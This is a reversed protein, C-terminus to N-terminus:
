SRTRDNKQDEIWQMIKTMNEAALDIKKGQEKLTAKIEDSKQCQLRLCKGQMDVCDQRYQYRPRGGKEYLQDAVKIKFKDLDSKPVFAFRAWIGGIVVAAATIAEAIYKEAAM